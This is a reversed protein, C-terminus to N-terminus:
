NDFQTVNYPWGPIKQNPKNLPVNQFDFNETFRKQRGDKANIFGELHAQFFAPKTAQGASLYLVTTLPLETDGLGASEYNGNNFAMTVETGNSYVGEPGVSLSMDLSVYAMEKVVDSLTNSKLTIELVNVPAFSNLTLHNFSSQLFDQAGNEDYAVAILTSRYGYKLPLPHDPRLLAKTTIMEGAGALRLPPFHFRGQSDVPISVEPNADSFGSCPEKNTDVCYQNLTITWTQGPLDTSNVLSGDFANSM